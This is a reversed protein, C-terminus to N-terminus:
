SPARSSFPRTTPFNSVVAQKNIRYRYLGVGVMAALLTYVVGDTGPSFIVGLSGDFTVVGGSLLVLSITNAINHMLWVPWVSKGLLRLEGYTIAHFPLIFLAVLIFATLGLPTQNQLQQRDLFHVWYPIHWGGWIVGTLLHNLPVPLNLAEFRPTLYGRWAFEEFINKVMVAGFSTGVLALFDAFSLPAIRSFAAPAFILIMGLMLLTIFLPILLAALYWRWSARLNFSVGFDQWGDGGFARLFLGVAVPAILWVLIGPGQMPAPSPVVQDLAIGLWGASLTVITFITLNRTIKNM